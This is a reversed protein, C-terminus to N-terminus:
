DIDDLFEGIDELVDAGDLMECTFCLYSRGIAVEAPEMNCRTCLTVGTLAEDM